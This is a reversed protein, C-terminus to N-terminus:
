QVYTNLYWLVFFSADDNILLIFIMILINWDFLNGKMKYSKMKRIVFM